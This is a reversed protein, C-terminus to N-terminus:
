GRGGLGKRRARKVRQLGIFVVAVTAAMWGWAYIRQVREPRGAMGFGYYIGIAIVHLVVVAIAFQTVARRAPSEVKTPRSPIPDSPPEM